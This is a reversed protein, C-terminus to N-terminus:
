NSLFRDYVAQYIGILRPLGMRDLREKYAEWEDEIGGEVIWKAGMEQSYQHIEPALDVIEDNEEQLMYVAPFQRYSEIYPGYLKGGEWKDLLDPTPEMMQYVEIPLAYTGHGRPVSQNKWMLRSEYGSPVEAHIYTGDGKPLIHTGIIGFWSQLAWTPEYQLDQWRVAAEPYQSKSTVTFGNLFYRPPDGPWRRGTPGELPPIIVYESEVGEGFIYSHSWALFSGLLPPDVQRQKATLVAHSHSFTEIDILGEAWLSHFYQIGEKYGDEVAIYVVKSPNDRDISIGMEEGIQHQRDVGFSSFLPFFGMWAFSKVSLPIEDAKGNGNPDGNKFARLVERYEDYSQPVDLGLDDLWKKNIFFHLEPEAGNEWIAPFSYIHGDPAWMAKKVHPRDELVNNLNVAWTEILDEIPAFVGQPAHTLIDSPDLTKHMFFADPFDGSAFILNKKEQYAQEQFQRWEIHVNTEEEVMDFYELGEHPFTNHGQVAVLELTIKETTIPYGSATYIGSAAVQEEGGGTAFVCISSTMALFLVGVFSAVKKM